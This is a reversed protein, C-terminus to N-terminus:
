KQIIMQNRQVSGFIIKEGTINKYIQEYNQFNVNFINFTKEVAEPNNENIYYSCMMQLYKAAVVIIYHMIINAAEEGYEDHVISIYDEIKNPSLADNALTKM